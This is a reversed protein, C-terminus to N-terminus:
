WYEEQRQTIDMPLGKWGLEVKRMTQLLIIASVTVPSLWGLPDSIKAIESLIIRKAPITYKEPSVVTFSFQDPVPHWQVHLTKISDDSNRTLPFRTQTMSPPVVELVAPASSSRKWLQFEGKEILGTLQKQMELAEEQSQAGSILYDV